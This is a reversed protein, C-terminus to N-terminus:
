LSQMLLGSPYRPTGSGKKGSGLCFTSLIGHNQIGNQRSDKSVFGEPVQGLGVVYILILVQPLDHNQSLSEAALVQIDNVVRGHGIQPSTVFVVIFARRRPLRIKNPLANKLPPKM